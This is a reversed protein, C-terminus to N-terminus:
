RRRKLEEIISTFRGDSQVERPKGRFPEGEDSDLFERAVHEVSALSGAIDAMVVHGVGDYGPEVEYGHKDRLLAVAGAVVGPKAGAQILATSLAREVRERKGTAREAALDREYREELERIKVRLDGLQERAPVVVKTWIDNNLIFAKDGDKFPLYSDRWEDPVADLTAVYRPFDFDDM